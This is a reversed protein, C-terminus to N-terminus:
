GTGTSPLKTLRVEFKNETVLCQRIFGTEVGVSQARIIVNIVFVKSPTLKGFDQSFFNNQSYVIVINSTDVTRYKFVSKQNRRADLDM